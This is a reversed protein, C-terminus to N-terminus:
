VEITLTIVLSNSSLHDTAPVSRGETLLLLSYSISLTMSKSVTITRVYHLITADRFKIIVISKCYM